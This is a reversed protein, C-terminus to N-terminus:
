LRIPRIEAFGCVRCERVQHTYNLVYDWNKWEHGHRYHEREQTEREERAKDAARNAALRRRQNSRAIDRGRSLALDQEYSIRRKETM